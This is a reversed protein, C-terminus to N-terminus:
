RAESSGARSACLQGEASLDEMAFCPGCPQFSRPQKQKGRRLKGCSRACDRIDDVRLGLMFFVIGAIM